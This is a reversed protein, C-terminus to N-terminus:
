KFQLAYKLQRIQVAAIEKAADGDAMELDGFSAIRQYESLAFSCATELARLRRQLDPVQNALEYVQREREIQRENGDQAANFQKLFEEDM